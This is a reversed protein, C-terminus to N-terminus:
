RYNARRRQINNNSQSISLQFKVTKEASIMSSKYLGLVAEISKTLSNTLFRPFSFKCFNMRNITSIKLFYVKLERVRVNLTSEKTNIPLHQNQKMILYLSAGKSYLGYRCFSPARRAIPANHSLNFCVSGYLDSSSCINTCCTKGSNLLGTPCRLAFTQQKM